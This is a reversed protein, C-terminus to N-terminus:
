KNRFYHKLFSGLGVITIGIVLSIKGGFSNGSGFAIFSALIILFGGYMIFRGFVIKIWDFFINSQGKNTTNTKKIKKTDNFDNKINKDQNSHNKNMLIIIIMIGVAWLSFTSIKIIQEIM